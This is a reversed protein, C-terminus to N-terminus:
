SDDDPRAPFIQKIVATILAKDLASPRGNRKAKKFLPTGSSTALASLVSTLDPRQSALPPTPPELTAPRPESPIPFASKDGAQASEPQSTTAPPAPPVAPIASKLDSIQSPSGIPSKVDSIQSPSASASPTAISPTASTSSPPLVASPTAPPNPSPPAPAEPPPPADAAPHPSDGRYAAVHAYFSDVANMPNNTERERMAIYAPDSELAQRQAIRESQPVAASMADCYAKFEAHTRPMPAASTVQFDDIKVPFPPTPHYIDAPVSSHVPESMGENERATDLASEADVLSPLMQQYLVKDRDSTRVRDHFKLWTNALRDVAFAQGPSIRGQRTANLSERIVNFVDDPTSLRALPHVRDYQDDSMRYPPQHNHCFRSGRNAWRQCTRLDAFQFACKVSDPM